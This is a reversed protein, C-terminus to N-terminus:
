LEVKADEEKIIKWEEKKAKLGLHKFLEELLWRNEKTVDKLRLINTKHTDSMKRDKDTERALYLVGIILLIMLAITFIDM